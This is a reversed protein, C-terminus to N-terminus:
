TFSVNKLAIVKFHQVNQTTFIFSNHDAVKKALIYFCLFAADEPIMKKPGFNHTWNTARCVILWWSPLNTWNILKGDGRRGLQEISLVTKSTSFNTWILNSQPFGEVPWSACPCPSTILMLSSLTKRFLCDFHESPSLSLLMVEKM